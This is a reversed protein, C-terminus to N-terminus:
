LYDSFEKYWNRGKEFFERKNGSDKVVIAQQEVVNEVANKTATGCKPCFKAKDKIETGCKRCYM